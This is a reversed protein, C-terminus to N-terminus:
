SGLSDRLHLQRGERAPQPRRGPRGPPDKQPPQPHPPHPTSRPAAVVCFARSPESLYEDLCLQGPAPTEVVETHCWTRAGPPEGDCTSGAASAFVEPAITEYMDGDLQALVKKKGALAASADDANKSEGGGGEGAGGGVEEVGEVVGM